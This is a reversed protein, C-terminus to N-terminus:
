AFTLQGDDAFKIKKTTIDNGFDRLRKVREKQKLNAMYSDPVKPPIPLFYEEPLACKIEECIEYINRRFYLIHNRVLNMNCGDTWNPDNCGNDNIYKWHNRERIIDSCLEKLKQDPTKQKM